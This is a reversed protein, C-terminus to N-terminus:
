PHQLGVSRVDDQEVDLHGADVPDLHELAHLGVGRKAV